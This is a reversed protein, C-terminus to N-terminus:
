SSVIGVPNLPRPPTPDFQITAAAQYIKTQGLTYFTVALTVALATLVATAWNKRVTHWIVAQGGGADPKEVWDRGGLRPAYNSSNDASM